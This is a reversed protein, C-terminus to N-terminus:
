NGLDLAAKIQKDTDGLGATLNSAGGTQWKVAFDTVTKLYANGNPTVPSSTLKGGTFLALFPSYNPTTVLKPSSAAATTTPINKLGNALGVLADTDTSLYKILEWAAGANKAGKPIGITNGGVASTGYLEPHDDAVPFPATAYKLNPAQSDVFGTRFEGDIMMAIKGTQFSNDASYKQGASATFQTLKDAGYYDTLQKQWTLMKTWAPDGALDFAGSSDQWHAGWQAAWNDVRNNYFGITPVFGAVKITGDASRQTLKKADTMLETMTKPPASIGAAAFMAKNYYLGYVDALLPMACHNGKYATYKQVAVPFQGLDVNDRKIYTDLSQFAASNCYQGLANGNLSVAVDPANNGRISQSIKDDDQNGSSEITINPHLTHFKTLAAEFVGLERDTFGSWVKLTVNQGTEPASVAAPTSGTGSCASVLLLGAAVAAAAAHRAKM